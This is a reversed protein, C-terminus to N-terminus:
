RGRGGPAPQDREQEDRDHEVIDVALHQRQQLRRQLRAEVPRVLIERMETEGELDARRHRHREGAPEDIADPHAKCEADADRHPAQGAHGMGKRRCHLLEDDGADHQRGGFRDARGRADLRCRDVQRQLFAREREAEAVGRGVDAVDNDRQQDRREREGEAPPRREQHRPREAEDPEGAPDDPRAAQDRCSTVAVRHRLGRGADVPACQEAIPAGPRDDAGLQEAVLRPEEQQEPDRVKEVPYEAHPLAIEASRHRQDVREGREACQGGADQERPQHRAAPRDVGRALARHQEVGADDDDHRQGQQRRRRPHGRQDDARRQERM